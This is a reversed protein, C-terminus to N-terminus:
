EKTRIRSFGLCHKEARVHIRKFIGEKGNSFKETNRHFIGEPSPKVFIKAPRGSM